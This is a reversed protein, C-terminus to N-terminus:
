VMEYPCIIDIHFIIQSKKDMVPITGYSVPLMSIWQEEDAGAYSMSLCAPITRILGSISELSSLFQSKINFLLHLWIFTFGLFIPMYSLDQTKTPTKTSKWSFDETRNGGSLCHGTGCGFDDIIMFLNYLLHHFPLLPMDVIRNRDKQHFSHFWRRANFYATIRIIAYKHFTCLIRHNTYRWHLYLSAPLPFIPSSESQPPLLTRHFTNAPNLVFYM